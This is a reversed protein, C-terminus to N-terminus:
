EYYNLESTLTVQTIILTHISTKSKLVEMPDTSLPQFFLLNYENLHKWIQFFRSNKWIIHTLELAFSYLHAGTDVIQYRHILDVAIGNLM